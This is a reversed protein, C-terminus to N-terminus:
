PRRPTDVRYPSTVVQGFILRYRLAPGQGPQGHPKGASELESIEFPPM